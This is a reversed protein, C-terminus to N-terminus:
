LKFRKLSYNSISKIEKDFMEKDWAYVDFINGVFTRDTGYDYQDIYCSGIVFSNGRLMYKSPECYSETASHLSGDIYMARRTSSVLIGTNIFQSDMTSEIYECYFADAPLKAEAEHWFLIKAAENSM